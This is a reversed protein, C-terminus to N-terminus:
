TEDFSTRLTATLPAAAHVRPEILVVSRSFGALRTIRLSAFRHWAAGQVIPVISVGLGRAVMAAIAELSNLEIIPTFTLRKRRLYAEIMAGTWAERDFQLFPTTALLERLPTGSREIPAILGFPESFLPHAILSADIPTLPQTVVAADLEGRAVKDVLDGSIGTTVRVDLQPHSDKLRVLLESFRGTLQTTIIGLSLTGAVSRTSGLGRMREYQALLQIALPVLQEGAATLRLSRRTREFLTVGLEVELMKMQVSVAAQSLHVQAAAAILTGSDHFALFARLSRILM